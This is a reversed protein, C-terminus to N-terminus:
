FSALCYYSIIVYFSFQLLVVIAIKAGVNPLPLCLPCPRKIEIYRCRWGAGLLFPQRSLVIVDHHQHSPHKKLSQGIHFRSIFLTKWTYELHVSHFASRHVNVRENLDSFSWEIEQDRSWFFASLFANTWKEWVFSHHSSELAASYTRGGYISQVWIRVSDQFNCSWLPNQGWNYWRGSYLWKAEWVQHDFWLFTQQGTPSNNREIEAYTYNLKGWTSSIFTSSCRTRWLWNTVSKQCDWRKYWRNIFTVFCIVCANSLSFVPSYCM